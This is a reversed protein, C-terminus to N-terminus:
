PRGTAAHREGRLDAVARDHRGAAFMTVGLALLCFVVVVVIGLVAHRAALPERAPQAQWHVLAEHGTHAVEIVVCDGPKVTFTEARDVLYDSADHSRTLWISGTVVTLRGGRRDLRLAERPGVRRTGPRLLGDPIAREIVFQPM